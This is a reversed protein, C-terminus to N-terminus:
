VIIKARVHYNDSDIDESYTFTTRNSELLHKALDIALRDKIHEKYKEDSMIKEFLVPDIMMEVQFTQPTPINTPNSMKQHMVQEQGM